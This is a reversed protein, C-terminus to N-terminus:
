GQGLSCVFPRVMAQEPPLRAAHAFAAIAIMIGPVVQPWIPGTLILCSRLTHPEPQFPITAGHHQAVQRRFKAGVSAIHGIAAPDFFVRHEGQQESDSRVYPLLLSNPAHCLLLQGVGWPEDHLDRSGRQKGYLSRKGRDPELNHWLLIAQNDGRPRWRCRACGKKCRSTCLPANSPSLRRSTHLDDDYTPTTRGPTRM